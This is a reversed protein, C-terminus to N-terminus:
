NKSLRRLASDNRDCIKKIRDRAYQKREEKTMNQVKQEKVEMMDDDGKGNKDCM